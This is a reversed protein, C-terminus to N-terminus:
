FDYRATIGFYRQDDRPVFRVAFTGGTALATAYSKNGLNKGLMSVRWGKAADSLTVTANFIGYAEQVTDPSQSIDFIVRSQWNYDAGLDLMLGNSLPMKYNGRLNYRSDPSFPLPKGDVNCSATAGVPCNFKDIRAKINAAAGSLTFERSVKFAFDLEIGKTSVEGANVLRTVVTGVVLDQLNAQYNKYKSDFAAVNFRLRNDLATTKLGVEYSDSKEPKLAISDRPTTGTFPLMNFFANYAPGKYGRSYTAYLMADKSLDIQPGIRGGV